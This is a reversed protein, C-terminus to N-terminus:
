QLECGAFLLSRNYETHICLFQIVPYHHVTYTFGSMIRAVRYFSRLLGGRPLLCPRFFINYRLEAALSRGTSVVYLKCLFSLKYILEGRPLIRVHFKERTNNRLFQLEKEYIKYKWKSEGYAHKNKLERSNKIKYDLVPLREM